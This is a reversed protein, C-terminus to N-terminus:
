FEGRLFLLSVRALQDCQFQWSVPNAIYMLRQM